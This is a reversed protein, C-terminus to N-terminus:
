GDAQILLAFLREHPESRYGTFYYINLPTTIWAADANQQQLVKIIEDIKTM